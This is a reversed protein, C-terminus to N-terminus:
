KSKTFKQWELIVGDSIQLNVLKTKNELHVIYTVPHRAQEIEQVLYIHYDWYSSKVSQRLDHSMKSENYTRYTEIWNGKRDYDVRYDIDNLKFMAVFMDPTSYWVENSVEGFHVLFHRIARMTINTIRDNTGPTYYTPASANEAILKMYPASNKQTSPNSYAFEEQASSNISLTVFVGFLSTFLFRQM